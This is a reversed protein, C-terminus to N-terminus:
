LFLLDRNKDDSERNGDRKENREKERKAKLTSALFVSNIGFKREVTDVQEFIKVLKETREVDGFLDVQRNKEPILDCLTIGAARYLTNKRHIKLFDKEVYSLIKSPINTPSPIAVEQKHYSFSQTKLFYFIKRTELKYHRAKRCASEVNRSLESLLFEPNSSPPHFTKTKSISSYTIKPNPDIDHVVECNLETWIEEYPKSLHHKIWAEDKSAFDYATKVGKQLLFRSTNPGIGWIKEIPTKALFLHALKGPILTLGRPKVWKSAVKALVKTPALGLSVSIDLEDSIDKQINELIQRYTMKLPRRWGTLDAFCEDISYEEVMETYRRVIDFMKQSYEVYSEYDGPLVIVSPFKKKVQYIPMGRTIGLAKAEYSLASVIGRESGTVAPKGRLGPNKAVEVSVFFADGDMHM